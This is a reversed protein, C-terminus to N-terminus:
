RNFRVVLPVTSVIAAGSVDKAATYQFGLACKRAERGFGHGPDSLVKVLSAKGSPEIKVSLRVQASDIQDQDAEPPFPCTVSSKVKALVAVTGPVPPPSPPASWTGTGGIVGGAVGGPVGGAVGTVASGSVFDSDTVDVLEDPARVDEAEPRPPAPRPEPSPEPPPEPAAQLTSPTVSAPIAPVVIEQPAAPGCGMIASALGGISLM